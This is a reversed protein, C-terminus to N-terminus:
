RNNIEHIIKRSSIMLDNCIPLIGLLKSTDVAGNINDTDTSIQYLKIISNKFSFLEESEFNMLELSSILRKQSHYVLNVKTFLINFHIVEETSILSTLNILTDEIIKLDNIIYEKEYRDASLFKGIYWAVIIGFIVTILLNYVDFPNIDKTFEVSQFWRSPAILITFIFGFLFVCGICFLFIHNKNVRGM